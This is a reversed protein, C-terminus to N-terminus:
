KLMSGMGLEKAMLTFQHEAQTKMRRLNAAGVDTLPSKQTDSLIVEINRICNALM